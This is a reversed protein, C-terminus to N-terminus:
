RENEWKTAADLLANIREDAVWMGTYSARLEALTMPDSWDPPEGSYGGDLPGYCSCHGLDKSRWGDPWRGWADGEGDWDGQTYHYIVVEAGDHVEDHGYEIADPGVQIWHTM